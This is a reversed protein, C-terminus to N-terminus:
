KQIEVKTGSWIYKKLDELHSNKLSICGNTWHRRRDILYDDHPWTGHIGIASGIAATPIIKGERKRREFTIRSEETPYDLMLMLHWKPHKKIYTIRFTGEPTRRDGEKFKDRDTDQGFVAPYRARLGAADYLRLIGDSKDIIIRAAGVLTDSKRKIREIMREKVPGKQQALAIYAAGCLPFFLNCFLLFRLRPLPMTSYKFAAFFLCPM